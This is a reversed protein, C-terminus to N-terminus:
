LESTSYQVVISEILKEPLSPWKLQEMIQDTVNLIQNPNPFNTIPSLRKIKPQTNKTDQSKATNKKTKNNNMNDSKEPKVNEKTNRSKKTNTNTPPNTHSKADM